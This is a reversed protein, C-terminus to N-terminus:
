LLFYRKPQVWRRDVSLSNATILVWLYVSGWKLPDCVQFNALCQPLSVFSSFRHWAEKLLICQLPLKQEGNMLQKRHEQNQSIEKDRGRERSSAVETHHEFWKNLHQIIFAHIGDSLQYISRIPSSKICGSISRCCLLKYHETRSPIIVQKRELELVGVIADYTILKSTFVKFYDKLLIQISCPWQLPIYQQPRAPVEYIWTPDLKKNLQLVLREETPNSAKPNTPFRDFYVWFKM